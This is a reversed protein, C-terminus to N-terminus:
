RAPWFFLAFLILLFAWEIRDKVILWRAGKNGKQALAHLDCEDDANLDRLYTFKVLWAAGCAAALYACLIPLELLWSLADATIRQDLAGFVVWGAISLIVLVPLWVAFEQWRSIFKRDKM